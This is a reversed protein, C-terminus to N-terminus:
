PALRSYASKMRANTCKMNVLLLKQKYAYFFLSNLQSLYKLSLAAM